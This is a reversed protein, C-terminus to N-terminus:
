LKKWEKVRDRRVEKEYVVDTEITPGTVPVRGEFSGCSSRTTGGAVGVEAVRGGRQGGSGNGKM